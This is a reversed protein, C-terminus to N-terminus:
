DGLRFVWDGQLEAGTFEIAEADDDILNPGVSYIVAGQQERRYRIPKGVYPDLPVADLYKPVLDSLREPYAGEDARYRYAAIAARVLSRRADARQAADAAHELAPVLLRVLIGNAGETQEALRQRADARWPYPKAAFARAQHMFKRYADVEAPLLFVRMGSVALGTLPSESIAPASGPNGSVAALLNMDVMSNANDFSTFVSLGFAEEMRLSRVLAHRYSVSEDFQIRALEDPGANAEALVQELTASANADIAQSVLLSILIADVAVHRAIGYMANIDDFAAGAHGMAAQHRADVALLRAASRLQHVDDLLMDVRPRAYDRDFFCGELAAAERLLRIVPQKEALYAALKEDTFDFDSKETVADEWDSWEKPRNQAPGDLEFAREYILAANERDSLRAPAASLALAGAEARIASLQVKVAADLNWWTMAFLACAVLLAIGMQRRSWDTARCNAADATRAASRRIGVLLIAAAGSAYLVSLVLLPWFYGAHLSHGFEMYGAYYIATVLVVLPLLAVVAAIAVRLWTRKWRGILTAVFAVALLLVTLFEIWLLAYGM